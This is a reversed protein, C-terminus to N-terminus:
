NELWEVVTVLSHTSPLAELKLEKGWILFGLPKVGGEKGDESSVEHRHSPQCTGNQTSLLRSHNFIFSIVSKVTM